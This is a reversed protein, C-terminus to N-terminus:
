KHKLVHSELKAADDPSKNYKKVIQIISKNLENHEELCATEELFEKGHRITASNETIKILESAIIANLYILDSLM